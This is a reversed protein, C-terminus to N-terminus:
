QIIQNFNNKELTAEQNAALTELDKSSSATNDFKFGGGVYFDQWGTTDIWESWVLEEWTVTVTEYCDCSENYPYTTSSKTEYHDDWYGSVVWEQTKELNRVIDTGEVLNMSALTQTKKFDYNSLNYATFEGTVNDQL